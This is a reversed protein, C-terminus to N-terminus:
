FVDVLFCTTRCGPGDHVSYSQIDFILGKNKDM